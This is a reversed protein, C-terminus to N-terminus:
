WKATIFGYVLILVGFFATLLGITESCAWFSLGFIIVSVGSLMDVLPMKIYEQNLVFFSIIIFYIFVLMLVSRTSNDPCSGGGLSGSIETVNHKSDNYDAFSIPLILLFM